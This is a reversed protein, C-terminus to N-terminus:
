APAREITQQAILRERPEHRKPKVSDTRSIEEHPKM